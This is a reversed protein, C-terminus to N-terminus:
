AARLRMGHQRQAAVLRQVPRPGQGVDADVAAGGLRQAQELAVQPLRRVAHQQQGFAVAAALAQEFQQAVVADVHGADVRKASNRAPSSFTAMAAAGSASPKWQSLRVRRRPPRGARGAPHPMETCNMVSVSSKAVVGCARRRRLCSCTLLTSASILSRDSSFTPSGTTCRFWPM